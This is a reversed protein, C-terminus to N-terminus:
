GGSNILARLARLFDQEEPTPEGEEIEEEPSDAAGEAAEDDTGGPAIVLDFASESPSKKM